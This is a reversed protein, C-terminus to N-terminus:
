VSYQPAPEAVALALNEASDSTDSLYNSQLDNGLLHNRAWRNGSHLPYSSVQIRLHCLRFEPDIPSHQEHSHNNRRGHDINPVDVSSRDLHAAGELTRIHSLHIKLRRHYCQLAISHKEPM